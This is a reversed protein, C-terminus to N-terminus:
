AGWESGGEWVFHGAKSENKASVLGPPRSAILCPCADDLSCVDEASQM